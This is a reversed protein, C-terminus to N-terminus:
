WNENFAKIFSLRKSCLSPWKIEQTWPWIWFNRFFNAKFNKFRSTTSSLLLGACISKSSVLLWFPPLTLFPTKYLNITLNRYETLKILYFIRRKKLCNSPLSKQLVWDWRWRKAKGKNEICIVLIISWSLYHFHFDVHIRWNM